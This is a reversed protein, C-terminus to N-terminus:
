GEFPRRFSLLFIPYLRFCFDHQSAGTNFIFRMRLDILNADVFRGDTIEVGSAMVNNQASPTETQANM